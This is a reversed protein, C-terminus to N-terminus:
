EDDQILKIVRPHFGKLNNADYICITIEKQYDESSLHTHHLEKNELLQKLDSALEKAEERTLCITIHDIKKNSEENLIKM